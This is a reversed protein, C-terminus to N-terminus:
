ISALEDASEEVTFQDTEDLEHLYVIDGADHLDNRHFGMGILAGCIRQQGFSDFDTTFFPDTVHNVALINIPFLFVARDCLEFSPIAELTQVKRAIIDRKGANTGQGDAAAQM